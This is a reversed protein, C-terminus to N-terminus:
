SGRALAILLQEGERARRGIVVRLRRRRRPMAHRREAERLRESHIAHAAKTHLTNMMSDEKSKPLPIAGVPDVALLVSRVAAYRM